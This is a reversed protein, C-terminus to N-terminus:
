QNMKRTLTSSITSMGKLIAVCFSRKPSGFERVWSSLSVAEIAGWKKTFKGASGEVEM